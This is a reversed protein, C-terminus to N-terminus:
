SIWSQQCQRNSLVSGQPLLYMFGFVFSRVWPGTAMGNWRSFKQLLCNEHSVLHAVRGFGTGCPCSRASGHLISIHRRRRGQM